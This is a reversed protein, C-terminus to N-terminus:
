ASHVGRVISIISFVLGVDVPFCIAWWFWIMYGSFITPCWLFLVQVIIKLYASVHTVVSWAAVFINTSEAFDPNILISSNNTVPNSINSSTIAGFDVGGTVFMELGFILLWAM